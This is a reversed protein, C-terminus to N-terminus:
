FILVIIGSKMESEQKSLFCCLALLCPESVALHRRKGGERGRKNEGSALPASVLQWRPSPTFILPQNLNRFLLIWSSSFWFTTLSLLPEMGKPPCVYEKLSIAHAINQVSIFPHNEVSISRQVFVDCKLVCAWWVMYTCFAIACQYMGGNLVAPWTMPRFKLYNITLEAKNPGCKSSRPM